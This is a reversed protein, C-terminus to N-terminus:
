RVYDNKNEWDHIHRDLKSEARAIKLELRLTAVELRRHEETFLREIELDDHTNKKLLRRLREM